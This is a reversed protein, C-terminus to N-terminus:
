RGRPRRPRPAGAERTHAAPTISASAARLRKIEEPTLERWQGPKLRADRLPGIAVRALHDVPHGIADCMNRVQRNRGERITIRLTAGGAKEAIVSVEAPETRRGEIVIGRSLRQIDHEDPIGLV